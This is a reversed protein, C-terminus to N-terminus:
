AIVDGDKVFLHAYTARLAMRESAQYKMGVALWHRDNGPIRPTRKTAGTIPEEDFTWGGTFTWQPTPSYRAGLSFRWVDEWEEPTVADPQVSDFQVRLEEFREWNTWQTEFLLGFEESINHIWSLSVSEPLDVGASVPADTFLGTMTLPTAANPVEFNSTGELDVLIRSKWALGVKSKEGYTYSAGLTFGTAWDNGEVEVFGDNAQPALGLATANTAGLTAFGITGLDIANSLTADAYLINLAGGIAFNESVEVSVAPSFSVTTLESEVASYRGVWERDYETALGFPSHIGLGWHVGEFLEAKVYVSPVAAVRGGDPGDSGSLPIGLATNTSGENSFEASPIILDVNASVHSDPIWAMAAPNFAIESGDGYGAAAGAFAYGIGESSQELIAFGAAEARELPTSLFLPLTAAFPLVTRSLIRRTLSFTHKM